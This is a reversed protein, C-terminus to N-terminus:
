VDDVDTAAAARVHDSHPAQMSEVFRQARRPVRADYHSADASACDTPEIVAEGVRKPHRIAGEVLPESQHATRATRMIITLLFPPRHQHSQDLAAKWRREREIVAGGRM